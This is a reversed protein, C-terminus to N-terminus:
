RPFTTGCQIKQPNERIQRSISYPCGIKVKTDMYIYPCMKTKDGINLALASIYAVLRKLGRVSGQSLLEVDFRKLTRVFRGLFRIHVGLRSKPTWIYPCM